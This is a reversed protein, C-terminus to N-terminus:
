SLSITRWAACPSRLRQVSYCWWVACSSSVGPLPGFDSIPLCEPPLVRMAVHRLWPPICLLSVPRSGVGRSASAFQFPVSCRIPQRYSADRLCTFSLCSSWRSLPRIPRLIASAVSPCFHKPHAPYSTLLVVGAHCLNVAVGCASACVIPAHSVLTRSFHCHSCDTLYGSYRTCQRRSTPSQPRNGFCASSNRSRVISSPGWYGGLSRRSHRLAM